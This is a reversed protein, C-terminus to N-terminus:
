PQPKLAPNTIDSTDLNTYFSQQTVSLANTPLLTEPTTQHSAAQNTQDLADSLQELSAVHTSAERGLQQALRNVFATFLMEGQVGLRHMKDLGQSLSEQYSELNRQLTEFITRQNADLTTLMQDSQLQVQRLQELRDQLPKVRDLNGWHSPNPTIAETISQSTNSWRTEINALIQAMQQTLSETCRDILEQSFESIVQQQLIKQQPLSALQQRTGELQRIERVLSERETRLAELDTQLAQLLDAHLVNIEQTVAQAIQQAVATPMSNTPPPQKESAAMFNQQQAVLYSRVRELVRRQKAADGPKPWPLRADVKPLISDIDAILSQIDKQSTM